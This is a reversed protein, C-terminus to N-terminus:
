AKIEDPFHAANIGTGLMYLSNEMFLQPGRGWSIRPKEPYGSDNTVISLTYLHPSEPVSSPILLYRPDVWIQEAM